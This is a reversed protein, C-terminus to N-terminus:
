ALARTLAARSVLMHFFQEVMHYSRQQAARTVASRTTESAVREDFPYSKSCWM